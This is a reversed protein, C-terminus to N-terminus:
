ARHGYGRGCRAKTSLVDDAWRSFECRHRTGCTSCSRRYWPGALRHTVTYEGALRWRHVNALKQVVGLGPVYEQLHQLQRRM